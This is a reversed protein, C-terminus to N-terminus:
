TRASCCIKPMPELSFLVLQALSYTPPEFGEAGVAKVKGAKSGSQRKFLINLSRPINVKQKIGMNALYKEIEISNEKERKGILVDTTKEFIGKERRKELGEM